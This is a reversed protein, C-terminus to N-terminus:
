VPCKGCDSLWRLPRCCLSDHWLQNTKNAERNHSAPLSSSTTKLGLEGSPFGLQHSLPPTWPSKQLQKLLHTKACFVGNNKANGAVSSPDEVHWNEPSNAVDVMRMFLAWKNISHSVTTSVNWQLFVIHRDWIRNFVKMRWLVTLIHNVNTAMEEVLFSFILALEGGRSFLGPKNLCGEQSSPTM